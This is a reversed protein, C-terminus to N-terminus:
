SESLLRKIMKELMPRIPHGPNKKLFENYTLIALKPNKLKKISINHLLQITDSQSTALPYEFLLRKAAYYAEVWMGLAIHCKVLMQLSSFELPTDPHNSAINEYFEIAERFASVATSNLGRTAYFSGLYYPITFGTPTLPYERVIARYITIAKPWNNEIEYSKALGYQAQAVIDPNIKYKESIESYVARGDVFKNLNIFTEALNLKAKPVLASKPNRKIFRQYRNIIKRVIFENESEEPHEIKRYDNEISWLAREKSYETFHEMVFGGVAIGILIILYSLCIRKM